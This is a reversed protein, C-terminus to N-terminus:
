KVIDYFSAIKVKNNLLTDIYFSLDQLNQVDLEQKAFNPRGDNDTKIFSVTVPDCSLPFLGSCSM